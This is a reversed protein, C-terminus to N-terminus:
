LHPRAPLPPRPKSAATATRRSRRNWDSLGRWLFLGGTKQRRALVGARLDTSSNRWLLTAKAEGANM